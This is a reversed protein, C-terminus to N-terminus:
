SVHVFKRHNYPQDSASICHSSAYKSDFNNKREEMRHWIREAFFLFTIGIKQLNQYFRKFKTIFKLIQQIHNKGSNKSLHREDHSNVFQDFCNCNNFSLSFIHNHGMWSGLRRKEKDVFHRGSKNIWVLCLIAAKAHWLCQSRSLFSLMAECTNWFLHKLKVSFM